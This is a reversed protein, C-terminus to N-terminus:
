YLIWPGTIRPRHDDIGVQVDGPVRDRGASAEQTLRGRAVHHAARAQRSSAHAQHEGGQVRRRRVGAARHPRPEHVLVGMLGAEHRGCLDIVVLAAVQRQDAIALLELAVDSAPPAAPQCGNEQHLPGVRDLRGRLQTCPDVASDPDDPRRPPPRAVAAARVRGAAQGCQAHLQELRHAALLDDEVDAVHGVLRDGVRELQPASRDHRRVAVGAIEHGGVALDGVRGRGLDRPAPAHEPDAEVLVVQPRAAM